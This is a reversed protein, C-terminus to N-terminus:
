PIIKLWLEGWTIINEYEETHPMRVLDDKLDRSYDLEEGM